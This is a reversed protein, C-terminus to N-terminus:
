LESQLVDIRATVATSCAFRDSELDSEGLVTVAPCFTVYVRSTALAPGDVACPTVILSESGGPVLKTEASLPPDRAPPVTM